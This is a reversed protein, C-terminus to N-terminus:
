RNNEDHRMGMYYARRIIHYLDDRGKSKWYDDILPHVEKKIEIDENRCEQCNSRIPNVVKGHRCKPPNPPGLPNINKDM